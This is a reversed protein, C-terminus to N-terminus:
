GGLPSLGLADVARLNNVVAFSTVAIVLVFFVLKAIQPVARTVLLFGVAALTIASDVLLGPVLGVTAFMWEAIPNWESVDWGNVHRRLCLYTTWHDAASILLTLLALARL